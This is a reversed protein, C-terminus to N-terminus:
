LRQSKPSIKKMLLKLVKMWFFLVFLIVSLLFLLVFCFSYQFTSTNAAHLLLLLFLLLLLLIVLIADALPPATIDWQYRSNKRVEGKARGRLKRAESHEKELFLKRQM